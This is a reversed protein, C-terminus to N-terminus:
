RCKREDLSRPIRVVHAKASESFVDNLYDVATEDDRQIRFLGTAMRRLQPAYYKDGPEHTLPRELLVAEAVDLARIDLRPRVDVLSEDTGKGTECPVMAMLFRQTVRGM